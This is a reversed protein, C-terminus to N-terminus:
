IAGCSQLLETRASQQADLASPPNSLCYTFHARFSGSWRAGEMSKTCAPHARGITVQEVASRAYTDCIKVDAARAPFQLQAIWVAVLPPLSMQTRLSM